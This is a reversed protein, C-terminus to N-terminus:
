VFFSGDVTAATAATAMDSSRRSSTGFTQESFIEHVYPGGGGGWGWLNVNTKKRRPAPLWLVQSVFRENLVPRARRMVAFAM